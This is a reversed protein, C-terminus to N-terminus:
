QSMPTSSGLEECDKYEKILNDLETKANSFAVNRDVKFMVSSNPQQVYVTRGKKMTRLEHQLVELQQIRDKNQASRSQASSM